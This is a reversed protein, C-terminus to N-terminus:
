RRARRASAAVSPEGWSLHPCLVARGEAPRTATGLTECGHCHWAMCPGGACVADSGDGTAGRLSVPGMARGQPLGGRERRRCSCPPSEGPPASVEQPACGRWTCCAARAGGGCCHNCTCAGPPGKSTCAASSCLLAALCNWSASVQPWAFHTTSTSRPGAPLRCTACCCPRTSAPRRARQVM